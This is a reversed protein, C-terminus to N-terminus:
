NVVIVLRCDKLFKEKMDASLIKAANAESVVVDGGHLGHSKEAKIILPNSGVRDNQKAKEPSRAYGAFGMQMAQEINAMAPGYIEKAGDSSVIRPVMVPKVGKGSANIILGTYKQATPQVKKDYKPAPPGDTRHREVWSGVAKSIGGYLSVRVVVEARPTGRNTWSFDERFVQANRIIGQTEVKLIDDVQISQRYLSKADLTINNLSESIVMYALHRATTKAVQEAQVENVMKKMNASGIATGYIYGEEYDIKIAGNDTKFEQILQANSTEIYGSLTLVVIAITFGLITQKLKM